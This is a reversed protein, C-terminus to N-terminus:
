PLAAATAALQAAAGTIMRDDSKDDALPLAPPRDACLRLTSELLL